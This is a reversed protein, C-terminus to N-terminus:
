KKRRNELSEYLEDILAQYSTPKLDPFAGMVRREQANLKDVFKEPIGSLASSVKAPLEYLTQVPASNAASTAMSTAADTLKATAKHGVGALQKRVSSGMLRSWGAKGELDARGPLAERATAAHLRVEDRLYDMKKRFGTLSTNTIVFDGWFVVALVTATGELQDPQMLGLLYSFGPYALYVAVVVGCGFEVFGGIWVRGNINLPRKSYDWWQAHYLKEMAWSTVYELSCTLLGGLLFLAVLNHVDGLVEIALLGGCGYIPCYPGNLFGRNIFRKASVSCVVTECAWGCVSFIMFLMWLFAIRYATM